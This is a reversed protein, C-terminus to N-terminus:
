RDLFAPHVLLVPVHVRALVSSAVSGFLWRGMGGRGHTAMMLLDTPESRFTEGFVNQEVVNIIAGPISGVVAEAQILLQSMHRCEPCDLLVMRISDLYSQYHSLSAQNAAVGFLTVALRTDKEPRAQGLWGLLPALAQEALASGDLPVLIHRVSIPQTEVNRARPPVVMVPTTGKQILTDVVKGLSLHNTMTHQRLAVLALEAGSSSELELLGEAVTPASINRVDVRGGLDPVQQRLGALYAAVPPLAPRPRSSAAMSLGRGRLSGGVQVYGLSLHAQLESALFAAYPLTHESEPARNLPVLVRRLPHAPPLTERGAFSRLAEEEGRHDLQPSTSQEAEVPLATAPSLSEPKDFETDM